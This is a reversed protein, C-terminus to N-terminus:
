LNKLEIAIFELVVKKNLYFYMTNFYRGIKLDYEKNNLSNLTKLISIICIIDKKRLLRYRHIIENEKIEVISGLINIKSDKYEFRLKM